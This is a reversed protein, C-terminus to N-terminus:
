LDSLPPLSPLTGLPLNPTTRREGSPSTAIFTILILFVIIAVLVFPNKGLWTIINEGPPPAPGTCGSPIPIKSAVYKGNGLASWEKCSIDKGECVADTMTMTKYANSNGICRSDFCQASNDTVPSGLCDCVHDICVGDSCLPQCYTTIDQDCKKSQPNYGWCSQSTEGLCCKIMKKDPMQFLDTYSLCVGTLMGLGPVFGPLSSETLAEALGWLYLDNGSSYCGIDVMQTNIFISAKSPLYETLKRNHESINQAFPRYSAALQTVGDDSYVIRVGDIAYAGSPATLTASKVNAHHVVPPIFNLDVTKTPDSTNNSQAVQEANACLLKSVGLVAGPVKIPPPPVVCQGDQYVEHNLCDNSIKYNPFSESVSHITTIPPAQYTYPAYFYVELGVVVDTPGAKGNVVIGTSGSYSWSCNNSSGNCSPIDYGNPEQSSPSPPPTLDTVTFDEAFMDNHPAITIIM